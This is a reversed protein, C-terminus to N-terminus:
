HTSPAPAPAPPLKLLEIAAQQSMPRHFHFGQLRDCGESQFWALQAATEIGEAVVALGLSHALALMARVIAADRPDILVDVVFSRDIKIGDFPLQRLHSLSSFGTGFDDLMVRVGIARLHDINVLARDPRELAISEIIEIELCTPPLGTRELIMSVLDPFGRRQFSYPTVNIAVTLAPHGPRQWQCAQLCAQEIVWQDLAEVLGLPELDAIFADPLLRGHQPHQWRVLAEFGCVELSWGDLLPQFELEFEQRLFAGRLDAQLALRRRAEIDLDAAFVRYRMAIDRHSRARARAMEACSQLADASRADRPALAIGVSAEIALDRGHWELPLALKELIQEAVRRAGTEGGFGSGHVAFYDSGPRSAKLANTNAIQTIREACALLAMDVGDMGAAVAINGLNDIRLMLLATGKPHDIQTDIEALMQTRNPLGTLPDFLRLREATDTATEAREREKELLWIVLAYGIFVQSLLNVVVTYKFWSWEVNPNSQALYGAFTTLLDIGYLGLALATLLQGIGGRPGRRFILIGMTLAAVGTILYRMGIRMFTRSHVAQPDFAFALGSILGILCVIGLTLQLQRRTWRQTRWIAITGLILTAVQAYAAILSLCSLGLRLPHASPYVPILLISAAATGLYVALSLFSVSWLALHDRRFLRFYHTFVFAQTLAVIAGAFYVVQELTAWDDM